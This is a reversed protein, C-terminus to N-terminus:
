KKESQQNSSSSRGNEEDPKLSADISISQLDDRSTFAQYKIMGKSILVEKRSINPLHKHPIFLCVHPLLGNTHAIHANIYKWHYIGVINLNLIM